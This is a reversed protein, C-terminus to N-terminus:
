AVRDVSPRAAVDDDAGVGARLVRVDEVAATAVVPEVGVVVAGGAGGRFVSQVGDVAALSEVYADDVRARLDAPAALLHPDVGPLGLRGERSWRDARAGNRATRNAPTRLSVTQFIASPTELASTQRYPAAAIPVGEAWRPRKRPGSEHGM